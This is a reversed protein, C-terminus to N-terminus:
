VHMGHLVFCSELVEGKACQSVRSRGVAIVTITRPGAVAGKIAAAVVLHTPLDFFDYKM